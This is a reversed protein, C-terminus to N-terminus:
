RDAGSPGLSPTLLDHAPDKRKAAPDVELDLAAEHLRLVGELELGTLVGM